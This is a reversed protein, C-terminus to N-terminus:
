GASVTTECDGPAPVLTPEPVVTVSLTERPEVAVVGTGSTVLWSSGVAFAIRCPEPNLTFDTLCGTVSGPSCPITTLWCGPTLANAIGGPPPV